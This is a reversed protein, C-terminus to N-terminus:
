PLDEAYGDEYGDYEEEYLDEEAPIPVLHTLRYERGTPEHVILVEVRTMDAETIVEDMPSTVIQWTYEEYPEEFYEPDTEAADLLGMQVESLTTVALDEATAVIRMGQVTKASWIM